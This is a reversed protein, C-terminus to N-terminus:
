SEYPEDNKKKLAAQDDDASCDPKL